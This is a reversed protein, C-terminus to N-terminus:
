RASKPSPPATSGTDPRGNTAVVRGPMSSTMEGCLDTATSPAIPRASSMCAMTSASVM